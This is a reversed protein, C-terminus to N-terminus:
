IEGVTPLLIVARPTKPTIVQDGDIIKGGSDYSPSIVYRVDYTYSGPAMYDTDANIFDVTFAGDEIEYDSEKVVTGDQSKMTFVARDESAFTYGTARFVVSGTDGRSLKIEGSEANVEFM